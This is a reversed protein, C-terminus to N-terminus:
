TAALQSRLTTAAQTAAGADRRHGHKKLWWGLWALSEALSELDDGPHHPLTLGGILDVLERTPAPVEDHRDLRALRLGLNALAHALGHRHHDETTNHLRRFLEATERSAALADRHHGTDCLRISLNNLVRALNPLHTTPDADVLRRYRTVSEAAPEIAESHRGLAAFRTGVSDLSEALLPRIRDPASPERERYVRVAHRSAELAEVHRGRWAQVLGVNTLCVATAVAHDDADDIERCLALAEQLLTLAEDLRRASALRLGRKNLADVRHLAATPTGIPQIRGDDSLRHGYKHLMADLFDIIGVNTGVIARYLASAKELHRRAAEGRGLMTLERHLALLAVWHQISPTPPQAHAFLDVAEDLVAVAEAGMEGIAIGLDVLTSALERGDPDAHTGNLRRRLAVAEELQVLGEQHRGAGALQNGLNALSFALRPLHADQDKGALTRFIDTAEQVVDVAEARRNHLGWGMGLHNLLEALDPLYRDPDAEALSRYREIAEIVQQEEDFTGQTPM